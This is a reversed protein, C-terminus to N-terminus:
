HMARCHCPPDPSPAPAPVPIPISIYPVKPFKEKFEKFVSNNPYFSVKTTCPMPLKEFDTENNLVFNVFAIRGNFRNHNTECDPWLKYYPIAEIMRGILSIHVRSCNMNKHGYTPFNKKLDYPTNGNISIEYEDLEWYGGDINIIDKRTNKAQKKQAMENMHWHFSHWNHRLSSENLIINEKETIVIFETKRIIEDSMRTCVLEKLALLLSNPNNYKGLISLNFETSIETGSPFLTTEDNEITNILTESGRFPAVIKVANQDKLRFKIDWKATAYDPHFKTLAKKTGHGNRHINSTSEKAAWHLLRTHNKVGVGNDTVSITCRENDLFKVRTIIQTANGQGIAGDWWEPLVLLAEPFDDTYPVAENASARWLAAYDESM